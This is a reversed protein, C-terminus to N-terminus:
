DKSPVAPLTHTFSTTRKAFVLLVNPETLLLPPILLSLGFSFFLHLQALHHENAAINFVPLVEESIDIKRSRTHFVIHPLTQLTNVATIPQLLLAQRFHTSLFGFFSCM